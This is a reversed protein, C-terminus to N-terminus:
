QWLLPPHWSQGNSGSPCNSKCQKRSKSSGTARINSQGLKIFCPWGSQLIAPNWLFPLAWKYWQTTVWEPILSIWQSLHAILPCNHPRYQISNLFPQDYTWYIPVAFQAYCDKLVLEGVMTSQLPRRQIDQLHQTHGAKSRAIGSYKSGSYQFESIQCVSCQCVWFTGLRFHAQTPPM